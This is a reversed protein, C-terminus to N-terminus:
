PASCEAAPPQWGGSLSMYALMSQHWAATENLTCSVNQPKFKAVLAASLQRMQRPMCLSAQQLISCEYGRRCSASKCV